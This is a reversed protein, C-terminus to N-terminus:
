ITQIDFILYVIYIISSDIVVTQRPIDTMIEAARIWGRYKLYPKTSLQLSGPADTIGTPAQGGFPNKTREREGSIVQLVPQIDTGADTPGHLTLMILFRLSRSRQVSTSSVHCAYEVPRRLFSRHFRFKSNRGGAGCPAVGFKARDASVVLGSRSTQTVLNCIKHKWGTKHNRHAFAQLKITKNSANSASCLFTLRFFIGAGLSPPRRGGPRGQIRWQRTHILREYHL